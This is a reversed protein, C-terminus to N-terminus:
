KEREKEIELRLRSAQIKDQLIIASITSGVPVLEEDDCTTTGSEWSCSAVVYADENRSVKHNLSKLWDFGQEIELM